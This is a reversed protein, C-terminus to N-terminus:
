GWPGASTGLSRRPAFVGILGHAAVNPVPARGGEVRVRAYAASLKGEGVLGFGRGIPM